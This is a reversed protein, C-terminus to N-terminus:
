CFLRTPGCPDDHYPRDFRNKAKSIKITGKVKTGFSQGDHALVRRQLDIDPLGTWATGGYYWFRLDAYVLKNYKATLEALVVDALEADSGIQLSRTAPHLPASGGGDFPTDSGESSDKGEEDSAPSPECDAGGGEAPQSRWYEEVQRCQEALDDNSEPWDMQTYAYDRSTRIQQFFPDPVRSPADAIAEYAMRDIQWGTYPSHPHAMSQEGQAFSALEGPQLDYGANYASMALSNVMGYLGAHHQGQGASRYRQVGACDDPSWEVDRSLEVNANTRWTRQVGPPPEPEPFAEIWGHASVISGTLHEFRNNVADYVPVEDEPTDKPRVRAYTGPVFFLSYGNLKSRDPRFTDDRYLHRCFAEVARKHEDIGVPQALPVIVRFKTDDVNSGSTHIVAEVGDEALWALATDFDLGRDADIVLLASTTANDMLRRPPDFVTPAYLFADTKSSYKWLSWRTLAIAFKDWTTTEQFSPLHQHSAGPDTSDGDCVVRKIWDPVEPTPKTATFFSVPIAIDAGQIIHADSSFLTM